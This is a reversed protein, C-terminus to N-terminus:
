KYINKPKINMWEKLITEDNPLAEVTQSSILSYYASLLGTNIADTMSCDKIISSIIGGVLSLPPPPPHSPM